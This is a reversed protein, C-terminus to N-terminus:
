KSKRLFIDGSITSLDMMSGGENLRAEIDGGPMFHMHKHLNEREIDLDLDTYIGGSITELEFDLDLKSNLTVDVFGSITKIRMPGELGIIEVNGSISNLDIEVGEPIFVEYDIEMHICVDDDRIIIGRQQYTHSRSLKELDKIDADFSIYRDDVDLSLSYKDNDNNDNINVIAKVYAENKDWTKIIIQDAFDFDLEIKDSKGVKTTKEFIDQAQMYTVIFIAIAILVSKKM